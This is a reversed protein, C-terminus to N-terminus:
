DQSGGSSRRFHLIMVAPIGRASEYCREKGGYTFLPREQEGLFCELTRSLEFGCGSFVNVIQEISHSASDIQTAGQGDRFGVRWGAAFATPHLSTIFLDATRKLIRSWELALQSLDGIHEVAFSCIALDFVSSALPLHLCNARVLRGSVSPKERAVALMAESLDLGLGFALNATSLKELWRGTGCALDLVRKGAVNPLLPLLCRQELALLPNPAQDYTAAWRTYGEEISVPSSFPNLEPVQQNIKSPITPAPSSSRNV